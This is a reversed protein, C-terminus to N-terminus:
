IHHSSAFRVQAVGSDSIEGDVLAGREPPEESVRATDFEDEEVATSPDDVWSSPGPDAKADAANEGIDWKL